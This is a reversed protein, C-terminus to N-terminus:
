YVRKNLISSREMAYEAICLADTRGDKIGGRPGLVGFGPYKKQVYRISPKDKKNLKAQIRRKQWERPEVEVWPAGFLKLICKWAGYHQQFTTASKMGDKPMVKQKEIAILRINCELGWSNLQSLTTLEDSWDTCRVIKGELLLVMAGSEGPDIGIWAEMMRM